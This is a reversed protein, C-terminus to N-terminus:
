AGNTFVRTFDHILLDGLLLGDDEGLSSRERLQELKETSFFVFRKTDRFFCIYGGLAHPKLEKLAKLQHDEIKSHVLRDSDMSKLDCFCVKGNFALIYDFPTKVRIIRSAAIQKCGDPIRICVISQAKTRSEFFGEFQEGRRKALLGGVRRTLSM